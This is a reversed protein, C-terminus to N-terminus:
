SASISDTMLVFCHLFLCVFFLCLILSSLSATAQSHLFLSQRLTQLRNFYLSLIFLCLLTLSLSPTLVFSLSPPVIFSLSVRHFFALCSSLHFFKFGLCSLCLSSPLRAFCLSLYIFLYVHPFPFFLSHFSRISSIFSLM